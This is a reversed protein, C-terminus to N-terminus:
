QLQTLADKARKRVLAYEWSMDNFNAAKGFLEKAKVEDGKAAYVQAAVFLTQANRQDAQQLEALADDYRKQLLNVRGALLRAEKRERVNGSVEARERYEALLSTAEQVQSQSLALLIEAHLVGMMAFSTPELSKLNHALRKAKALETKADKFKRAEVLLESVIAISGIMSTTDKQQSELVIRRQMEHAAKEYGGEIMYSRAAAQIAQYREVFNSSSDFLREFSMRGEDSKGTLAYITGLGILSFYFTSDIALAKKYEATSEEFKGQKLLVEAYTDHPNAEDPLLETYKKLTKEAKDYDGAVSYAYGLSNYAPRYLSDLEIVRMLSRIGARNDNELFQLYSALEFHMRKDNPFMTVLQERLEKEKARNNDLRAQLAQIVAREGPSIGKSLQLAKAVSRRMDVLSRQHFALDLYARSFTPDKEIAQDLLLKQEKLRFREGLTRAQIYLQRAEDSSTTIPVEQTFAIRAFALLMTFLSLRKM